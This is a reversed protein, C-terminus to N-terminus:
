LPEAHRNINDTSNGSGGAMSNANGTTGPICSDYPSGMIEAFQEMSAKDAEDAPGHSQELEGDGIRRQLPRGREGTTTTTDRGESATAADNLRGDEPDM